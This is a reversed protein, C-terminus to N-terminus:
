RTLFWWRYRNWLIYLVIDVVKRNFLRISVARRIGMRVFSMRLWCKCNSLSSSLLLNKFSFRDRRNVHRIKMQMFSQRLSILRVLLFRFSPFSFSSFAVLLFIPLFIPLFDGTIESFRKLASLQSETAVVRHNSRAVATVTVWPMSFSVRFNRCRSAAFKIELNSAIRVVRAIEHDRETSRECTCRDVSIIRIPSGTLTAVEPGDKSGGRVWAEEVM